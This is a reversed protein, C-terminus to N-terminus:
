AWLKTEANWRKGLDIMNGDLVKLVILPITEKVEASDVQLRSGWLVEVARRNAHVWRTGHREVGVQHIRSAEM